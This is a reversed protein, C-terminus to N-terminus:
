VKRGKADYNLHFMQYTAVNKSLKYTIKREVTFENPLSDIDIVIGHQSLVGRAVRERDAKTWDIGAIVSIDGTFDAQNHRPILSEPPVRELTKGSLLVTTEQDPSFSHIAELITTKGSENLGVLTVISPGGESRLDIRVDGIGKFKQIHFYTYKV